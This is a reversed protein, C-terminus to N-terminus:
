HNEFKVETKKTPKKMADRKVRWINIQKYKRLLVSKGIKTYVDLFIKKWHYRQKTPYVKSYKPLGLFM